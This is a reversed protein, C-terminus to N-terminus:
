NGPIGIRVMKENEFRFDIGEFVLRKSTVGLYTGSFEATPQGYARKVDKVSSQWNIGKDVEGCFVGFEPSDRQQNYFYMNHVASSDNEFSVQIGKLGYDKFYVHSYKRSTRGEGLVADVAKSAAGIRVPGWGEGAVIKPQREDVQCDVQDPTVSTGTAQCEVKRAVVDAKQQERLFDWHTKAKGKLEEGNITLEMVLGSLGTTWVVEISRPGKPLWYSGRHISAPVGPAPRVIFGHSEWGQTGREALLEVRHPPTIFVADEGLNLNPRWASLTLEYCGQINEPKVLEPKRQDQARAFAVFVGLTCGFMSLLLVRAALQKM